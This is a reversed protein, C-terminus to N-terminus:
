IIMVAMMVLMIAGIAIGWVGVMPRVSPGTDVQGVPRVEKRTRILIPPAIPDDGPKWIKFTIEHWGPAEFRHRLLYTGEVTEAAEREATDHVTKKSNEGGPGAMPQIMATVKAGVIPKDTPTEKLRLTLISEEGTALDPVEMNIRLDGEQVEKVEAQGAEVEKQIGMMESMPAMCGGFSLLIEASLAIFFTTKVGM